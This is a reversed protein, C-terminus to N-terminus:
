WFIFYNSIFLLLIRISQIFLTGVINGVQCSTCNTYKKGKYNAVLFYVALSFLLFIMLYKEITSLTNASDDSVFLGLLAGLTGLILTATIIRLINKTLTPETTPCSEQSTTNTSNALKSEFLTKEEKSMRVTFNAGLQYDTKRQILIALEDEATLFQQKGERNEYMLKIKKHRKITATLGSYYATTEISTLNGEKTIIVPNIIELFDDEQKIVIVNSPSGIQYAALGDLNNEIITDKLNQLLTHLTENYHRVIGDFAQSPMTPYQTIPKIM